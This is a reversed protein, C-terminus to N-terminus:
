AGVTNGTCQPRDTLRGHYGLFWRWATGGETEDNSEKNALTHVCLGAPSGPGPSQSPRRRRKRGPRPGPKPRPMPQLGPKPRPRPKRRPRPRPKQRPRPRPKQRPRPRPKAKAKTRAKPRVATASGPGDLQGLTELMMDRVAAIQKDLGAPTWASTDVPPLVEVYVTAPRFTVKGKPQADRANHIVVPVMPVGAQMALHFAGKKFPGMRETTSRTGEPALVISVGDKVADVAPQMADIAKDSQALDIFVVGASKLFPGTFPNRGAEIKAIGTFDQRLLSGMVLADAASQHNFIFVAPRQSWLHERGTARVDLGIAASAFDSWSSMTVNAGHRPSGTLMRASLGVMMAPVMSGYALGTRVADQWNSKRSDFRHVPWDRQAAVGALELDPNLAHPKGVLELLPLDEMADTYFYSQSLDLQFRRALRRAARAKGEKWCSEVIGGTFMGDEVELETCLVHEIGLDRAVPDIQYHTASSIIAVTHGRALHAAVLARAEPYIRQALHKRFVQEGQEVFHQESLGRLAQTTGQMAGSMSLRGLSYNALTALNAQMERPSMSGNVLREQMFAYVSFGEVLTRDLDFFAGIAPGEPGNDIQETLEGYM